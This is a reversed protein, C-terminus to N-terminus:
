PRARAAGKLFTLKDPAYRLAAAISAGPPLPLRCDWVRERTQTVELLRGGDPDVILTNGNPLRQKMGRTLALFRDGEGDYCWPFAQTRPDYELVRSGRSSGHNDFLLLNGNDLFEADHQGRWIGLAAWVVSRSERDLVALLNPSRLSILVQGAKFLPFRPALSRSLV